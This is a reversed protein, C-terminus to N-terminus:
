PGIMCLHMFIDLRCKEEFDRLLEQVNNTDSGSPKMPLVRPNLGFTADFKMQSDLFTLPGFYGRKIKTPDTATSLFLKMAPSTLGTVGTTNKTPTNPPTTHPVSVASFCAGL